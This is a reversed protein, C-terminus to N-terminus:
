KWASSSTLFFYPLLVGRHTSELFRILFRLSALMEVCILVLIDPFSVEACIEKRYISTITNEKYEGERNVRTLWSTGKEEEKPWEPQSEIKRVNMRCHLWWWWGNGGADWIIFIVPRDCESEKQQWAERDPMWSMWRQSAQSEKWPSVSEKNLLSQKRQWRLRDMQTSMHTHMCPRWVFLLPSTDNICKWSRFLLTM